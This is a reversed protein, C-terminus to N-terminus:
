VKIVIDATKEISYHNFYAHEAPIWRNLFIKLKKLGNRKKIRIMQKIKGIKLFIKFDYIEEILPHTSYAGEIINVSKVEKKLLSSLEQTKCDFSQYFIPEQKLLPKIIEKKLRDFDINSAFETSTQDQKLSKFYDDMHFVNADFINEIYHALTTKGSSSYGDIAITLNKSEKIMEEIKVFLFHYSKIYKETKRQNTSSEILLKIKQDISM